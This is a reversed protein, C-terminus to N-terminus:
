TPSFDVVRARATFPTTFVTDEPFANMSARSYRTRCRILRTCCSLACARAPASSSTSGCPTFPDRTCNVILHTDVPTFRPTYVAQIPVQDASHLRIVRMSPCFRKFENVWATLVSLPAVVLSPSPPLLCSNSHWGRGAIKLGVGVGETIVGHLRFAFGVRYLPSCPSRLSSSATM